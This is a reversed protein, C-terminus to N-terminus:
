EWEGKGNKVAVGFVVPLRTGKIWAQAFSEFEGEEEAKIMKRFWRLARRGKQDSIAKEWLRAYTQWEHWKSAGPWVVIDYEWLRRCEYCLVAPFKGFFNCSSLNEIAGCRECKNM